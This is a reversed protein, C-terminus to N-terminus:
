TASPASPEADPEAPTEHQPPEPNVIEVELRKGEGFLGGENERVVRDEWGYNNKLSFIAGTANRGTFLHQEAFFQCRQKAAKITDSFSENTEEDRDPDDYKGSEYDLLTDRTTRLAIALGTITYPVQDTMYDEEAWYSSGDSKMVKVQRKAIHPDCNGFYEDIKQQLEAVTKFKLPRGGKNKEEMHENHM